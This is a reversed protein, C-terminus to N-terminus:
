ALEVNLLGLNYVTGISEFLELVREGIQDHNAPDYPDLQQALKKRAQRM